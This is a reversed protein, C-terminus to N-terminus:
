KVTVYLFSISVTSREKSVELAVPGSRRLGRRRFSAAEINFSGNHLSNLMDRLFRM